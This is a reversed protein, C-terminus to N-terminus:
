FTHVQDVFLAGLVAEVAGALVTQKGLKTHQVDLGLILESLGIETCVNSLADNNVLQMKHNTLDGELADGIRQFLDSMTLFGLVSDGLTEFARNSMRGTDKRHGLASPHTLAIRLLYDAKFTVYQSQWETLKKEWSTTTINFLEKELEEREEQMSSLFMTNKYPAILMEMKSMKSLHSRTLIQTVTYKARQSFHSRLVALLPHVSISYQM